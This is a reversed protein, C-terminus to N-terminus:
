HALRFFTADTDDAFIFMIEKRDVSNMCWDTSVNEGIWEVAAEITEDDKEIVVSHHDKFDKVMISNYHKLRGSNLWIEDHQLPLGCGHYSSFYDNSQYSKAVLFPGDSNILVHSAENFNPISRHPFMKATIKRSDDPLMRCYDGAEIIEAISVCENDHTVVMNHLRGLDRAKVTNHCFPIRNNIMYEYFALKETLYKNSIHYPFTQYEIDRCKSYLKVFKHRTIRIGCLRYIIREPEVTCNGYRSQSSTFTISFNKYKCTFSYHNTNYSLKDKEVDSTIIVSWCEGFFEGSIHMHDLDDKDAMYRTVDSLTEFEQITVDSKFRAKNGM